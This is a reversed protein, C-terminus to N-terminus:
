WLSRALQPQPTPTHAPQPFVSTPPFSLLAPGVQALPGQERPAAYARPTLGLARHLLRTIPLQLASAVAWPRYAETAQIGLEQMHMLGQPSLPVLEGKTGRSLM